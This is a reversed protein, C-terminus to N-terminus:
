FDLHVCPETELDFLCSAKYDVCPQKGNYTSTKIFTLKKFISGIEYFETM